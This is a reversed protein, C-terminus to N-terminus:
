LLGQAELADLRADDHDHIIEKIDSLELLVELSLSIQSDSAFGSTEIAFRDRTIYAWTFDGNNLIRFQVQDHPLYDEVTKIHITVNGHTDHPSVQEVRGFRTLWSQIYGRIVTDSISQASIAVFGKSIM